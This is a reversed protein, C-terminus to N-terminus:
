LPNPLVFLQSSTAGPPLPVLGAASIVAVYRGSPSLVPFFVDAGDHTSIVHLAGSFRDKIFSAGNSLHGTLYRGDGSLRAHRSTVSASTQTFAWTTTHEQLDRVFVKSGTHSASPVLDTATSRFALFRGNGSLHPTTSGGSAEGGTSTVSARATVGTALDHVFVDGTGNGDGVVLNTANSTFAVILGDDSLSADISLADSEGGASTVSVRRTTGASLDRVFVDHSGNADSPVLEFAFSTFAVVTGSASLDPGFSPGSGQAGDTGVSARVTVGTLRDHVFVDNVGNSDGAVLNSAVSAFAVRRGDASISPVFSEGDAGAGTSSVSVRELGGDLRDYVFVDAVGNDDGPVLVAASLFAVFRADASLDVQVGPSISNSFLSPAVWAAPVDAPFQGTGVRVTATATAGADDRVTYTFADSGHFGPEPTYRLAGDVLEVDGHAAASAVDLTLEDGDADTDNALAAITVASDPAAIAVDDVAVPADNVAAVALTVTGIAERTGDSVRYVLLDDGHTDPAPTYIRTAGAGGLTGHAPATIVAYTLPDDDVDAGPLAFTVPVDELTAVTASAATPADDIAVVTIAVTAPASTVGGSSAVFTFADVGNFDAHPAYTLAPAVGGLTGHAPPSAITVTVADGDADSGVLTIGLPQDEPTTVAQPAAVPLDAVPAIAITVTAPASTLQGDSVTFTVQDAGSADATPTFTRAAGVGSLTGLAPPTVIVVTLPDGDVDTGDLTIAVAVDEDTSALAAVALPADNVPTVVLTVTAAVSTLVGDTAVFALTDTGHFDAAPTYVLDPATGALTGHAPPTTVTFTLADGDDDTASLTVAVASDEATTVTQTGGVPTAGAVVDITVTAPASTLAGDRAVFTLADAGVYDTAPTYTLEGPAGTITGHAPADVLEFTLADGDVDSGALAIALPQNRGVALEAGQAVPADNVPTVTITAQGTVVELGDDVAYAVVLDGHFDAAPTVRVKGDEVAVAHGEAAASRLSLADGDPDQDNALVDVVLTGDEDVTAVDDAVVPARNAPADDGCGVGVAASFLIFALTSRMRSQYGIARM